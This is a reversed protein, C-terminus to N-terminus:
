SLRYYVQFGAHCSQSGETCLLVEYHGNMHFVFACIMCAVIGFPSYHQVNMCWTCQLEYSKYLYQVPLPCRTDWCAVPLPCGTYGVACGTDWCAVSLGEVTFAYQTGHQCATEWFFPWHCPTFWTAHLRVGRHLYRSLYRQLTHLLM